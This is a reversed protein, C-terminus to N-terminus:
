KRLLSDITAKAASDNPNKMLMSLAREGANLEQRSIKGAGRLTVLDTMTPMSYREMGPQNSEISGNFSPTTGEKRSGRRIMSQIAEKAGTRVTEGPVMRSVDSKIGQYFTSPRDPNFYNSKTVLNELDSMASYQKALKKNEGLQYDRRDELRKRLDTALEERTKHYKPSMERGENYLFRNLDSLQEINLNPNVVREEILTEPNLKFEKTPLLSLIDKKFKEAEDESFLEKNKRKSSIINDLIDEINASYAGKIKKGSELQSITQGVEDSAEKKIYGLEQGARQRESSIWDPIREIKTGEITKSQESLFKGLKSPDVKKDTTVDVGYGQNILEALRKDMDARLETPTIKKLLARGAETNGLKEFLQSVGKGGAGLGFGLGGEVAMTGPEILERTPDVYRETGGIGINGLGAALGAATKPHSALWKGAKGFGKVSAGIAGPVGTFMLPLLPDKVVDEAFGVFGSGEPSSKRGVVESLTELGSPIDKRYTDFLGAALGATARGPLSAIDLAGGVAAPVFGEADSMRPYIIKSVDDSTEKLKSFFGNSPENEYDSKAKARLSDAIQQNIESKYSQYENKIEDSVGAYGSESRALAIAIKRFRPDDKYQLYSSDAETGVPNGNDAIWKLTEIQNM